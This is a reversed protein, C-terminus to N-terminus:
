RHSEMSIGEVIIKETNNHLEIHYLPTNKVIIFPLTKEPKFSKHKYFYKHNGTMYITNLPLSSSYKKQELYYLKGTHNVKYVDKIKRIINQDTVIHDNTTITQIEKYGDITLIKADGRLCDLSIVNITLSTSYIYPAVGYFIEIIFTGMETPTGSIEGTETNLTIGNPLDDYTYLDGTFDSINTPIINAPEGLTINYISNYEIHVYTIDINILYVLGPENINNSPAGVNVSMYPNPIVESFSGTIIGTNEDVTLGPPLFPSTFGDPVFGNGVVNPIIALLQNLEYYVTDYSLNVVNIFVFTGYGGTDDEYYVDIQPNTTHATPIGSIEGTTPNITLGPPLNNAYINRTNVNPDGITPSVSFEQGVYTYSTQNNYYNLTM